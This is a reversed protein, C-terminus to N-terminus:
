RFGSTEIGYRNLWRYVDAGYRGSFRAAESINGSAIRMLNDLYVREFAQKADTLPLGFVNDDLLHSREQEQPASQDLHQFMNDVALEGDTSLVVAREIANQLERVNGPWDYAVMRAMTSHSPMRIERGFRQNFTTLFHETLLPIDETRHRLPPIRIIVISLRYYLDERFRKSRAEDLIDRHTAAIVRTDIDIPQSAGIPM